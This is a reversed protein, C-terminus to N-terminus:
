GILHKVLVEKDTSDLYNFTVNIDVNRKFDTRGDDLEQTCTVTRRGNILKVIGSAVIDSGSAATTLGVCKLQATTGIGTQVDVRVEKEKNRRNTPDKPCDAAVTPDFVNGGGQHVIEFVLQIKDKGVVNQRFGSIQVPSGSSFTAKSGSPDCIANDAVDIQNALVCMESVAITQYKYCVDARFIFVTNGALTSKFKFNKGTKPFEIFIETPEIINGESDRKKATPTDAPNVDTLDSPDFDGADGPAASSRFDNPSFGILSVKIDGVVAPTGSPDAFEHEGNNKLSVLAQFDFTDGDTVEAPPTGELFSIELGQSGGLFPTTPAGGIVDGGGNCAAILFLLVVGYAIYIVRRKQIM